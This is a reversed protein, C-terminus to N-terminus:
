MVIDFANSEELAAAAPECSDSDATYAACLQVYIRSRGVQQAITVQPNQGEPYGFAGLYVRMSVSDGPAVVGTRWAASAVGPGGSSPPRPATPPGTEERCSMLAVVAVCLGVGLSVRHM